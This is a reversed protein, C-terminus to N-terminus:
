PFQCCAWSLSLKPPGRPYSGSGYSYEAKCPPSPQKLQIFRSHVNTHSRQSASASIIEDGVAVKCQLWREERPLHKVARLTNIKLSRAGTRLKAYVRAEVINSQQHHHTALASLLFPFRILQQAIPAYNSADLRKQVRIRDKEMVLGKIYIKWEEEKVEFAKTM